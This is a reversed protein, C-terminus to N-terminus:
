MTVSCRWGNPRIPIFSLRAKSRSVSALLFRNGSSRALGALIMSGIPRATNPLRRVASGGSSESSIMTLGTSERMEPKAISSITLFGVSPELGDWWLWPTKQRHQRTSLQMPDEVLAIWGLLACFGSRVVIPRDFIMQLRHDTSVVWDSLGESTM